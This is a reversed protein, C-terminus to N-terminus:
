RLRIRGRQNTKTPMAMAPTMTAAATIITTVLPPMVGTQPHVPGPRIATTMTQPRLSIGQPHCPGPRIATTM